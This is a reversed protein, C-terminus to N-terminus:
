RIELDNEIAAKISGEDYAVSQIGQKTEEFRFVGLNFNKKGSFADVASRVCELSHTTAVVQVDYQKAFREIVQWIPLLAKWHLGVEIEDVLM